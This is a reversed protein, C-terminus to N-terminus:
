RAQAVRGWRAEDNLIGLCWSYSHPDTDHLDSYYCAYYLAYIDLYPDIEPGHIQLVTSRAFDAHEKTIHPDLTLFCISALDLRHDGAVAHVSIDLVASIELDENVLVNNLYYDTHVFQKQIASHDLARLKARLIQVKSDFDRVDQQLFQQSKKLQQDLKQLLYESWTAAQVSDPSAVLQGYPFDEVNITKLPELAAVFNRLVARQQEPSLEPFVIDLQKGTLKREITYFVGDQSEIRVIQPTTYPLQAQTARQQLSQLQELYQRTAKRYVKLVTETSHDFVFGEGGKGILQDAQVGLQNIVSAVASPIESSM